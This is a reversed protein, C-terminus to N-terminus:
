RNKKKNKAIKVTFGQETMEKIINPPESPSTQNHITSQANRAKKKKEEELRHLAEAPNPLSKVTQAYERDLEEQMKLALRRDNEEIERQRRPDVTAVASAVTTAISPSSAEQLFTSTFPLKSPIEKSIIKQSEYDIIIDSSSPEEWVSVNSDKDWYFYRSYETSYSRYWERKKGGLM